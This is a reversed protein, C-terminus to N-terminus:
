HHMVRNNQRPCATTNPLQRNGVEAGQQLYQDLGRARYPVECHSQVHEFVVRFVQYLGASSMILLDCVSVFLFSKGRKSNEFCM